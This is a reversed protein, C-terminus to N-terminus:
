TNIISILQYNADQVFTMTTCKTSTPEHSVVDRTHEGETIALRM